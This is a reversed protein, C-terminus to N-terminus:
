RVVCRISAEYVVLQQGMWAGVALTTMMVISFSLLCLQQDCQGALMCSIAQRRDRVAQIAECTEKVDNKVRTLFKQIPILQHARDIAAGPQVPQRLDSAISELMWNLHQVKTYFYEAAGCPAATIATYQYFEADNTIDSIM